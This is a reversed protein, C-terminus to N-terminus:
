ASLTPIHKKSNSSPLDRLFDDSRHFGSDLPKTVTEIYQIGADAPIVFFPSKPSKVLGDFNFALFSEPTELFGLIPGL